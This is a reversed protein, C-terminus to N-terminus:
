SDWSNARWELTWWHEPVKGALLGDCDKVSNIISTFRLGIPGGHAQCYIDGAFSYVHYKFIAVVMALVLRKDKPSLYKDPDTDAWKSERPKAESDNPDPKNLGLKKTTCGPRKGPVLSMVGERQLKHPDMYSAVFTQASRWDISKFETNSDKVYNSVIRATGEQDLSLHLAYIDLSSAMTDKVRLDRIAEQGEQLQLMVEEMSLDELRPSQVAVLPTLFDALQDGARVSVVQRSQMHGSPGSPKHVKPMMRLNPMDCAALGCNDLCRGYNTRSHASGLDFTNALGKTVSSLVCQSERVWETDVPIDGATHDWAMSIYTHEKIVVFRKGKDAELVILENMVMKKSIAKQGLAQNTSLNSVLQEGEDNCSSKMHKVFVQEWVDMRMNYKAEMNSPGPGPMMVCRSGRMDTVQENRMDLSNDKVNLVDRAELELAEALKLEMKDIEQM